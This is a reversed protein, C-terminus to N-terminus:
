LIMMMQYEAKFASACSMYTAQDAVFGIRCPLSDLMIRCTEVEQRELYHYDSCGWASAEYSSGKEHVGPMDTSPCNNGMAKFMYFFLMGHVGPCRMELAIVNGFVLDKADELSIKDGRDRYEAERLDECSYSLLMLILVFAKKRLFKMKVYEGDETFFTIQMNVLLIGRM